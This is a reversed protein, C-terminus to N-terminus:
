FSISECDFGQLYAQKYWSKPMSNLLIDNIETVGIKDTMNAGPFSALYENLDILRAAYYRLKLSRPKKMCPCVARKQKSLSNAHFIYWVLGKLLYDM